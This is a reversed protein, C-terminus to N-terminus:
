NVEIKAGGSVDRDNNQVIAMLSLKDNEKVINPISIEVKGKDKISVTKEKVVINANKLTRSRNEGRSIYTTKEDLVLIFRIYKGLKDGTYQYDFTIIKGKNKLNSLGVKDHAKLGLYKKIKSYVKTKSSGVVHEKGNVVLQPTYNSSRLKSAYTRQKKSYMSKSYPDKWGIYNWYDVHYSLTLVNDDKYENKIAKLLKDASPCSSCGQSTFLELVVVNDKKAPILSLLSLSAILVLFLGIRKM